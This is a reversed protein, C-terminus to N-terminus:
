SHKNQRGHILSDDDDDEGRLRRECREPFLKQILAWREEDVLKGERGKRRAWNSIRVRCMPCCLSTVEVHAQFCPMCLEHKCPLVVPKILLQLCIPCMFDTYFVNEEMKKSYSDEM